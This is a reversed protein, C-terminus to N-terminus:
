EPKVELPQTIKRKALQSKLVDAVLVAGIMLGLITLNSKLKESM